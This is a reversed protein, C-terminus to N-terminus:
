KLNKPIGDAHWESKRYILVLLRIHKEVNQVVGHLTTKVRTMNKELLEFWLSCDLLEVIVGFKRKKDSTQFIVIDDLMPTLNHFNPKSNDGQRIDNLYM